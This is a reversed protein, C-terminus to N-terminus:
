KLPLGREMESAPQHALGLETCACSAKNSTAATRVRPPTVARTVIFCLGLRRYISIPMQRTDLLGRQRVAGRDGALWVGALRSIEGQDRRAPGLTHHSHDAAERYLVRRAM